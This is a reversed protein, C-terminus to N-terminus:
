PADPPSESARELSVKGHRVLLSDGSSLRVTGVLLLREEARRAAVLTGRFRQSPEVVASPPPELEARLTEEDLSGRVALAFPGELRGDVNRAEDVHLTLEAAETPAVDAQWETPL